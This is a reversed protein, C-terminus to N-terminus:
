KNEINKISKNKIYESIISYLAQLNSDHALLRLHSDMVQTDNRIAPGTQAEEPTLNEWKRVTQKMLPILASFDINSDALLDKSICALANTFNCAFVSALHLKQRSISDAERIDESFISATEKLKCVVDKSSGEIFVPINDYRLEHNKTFTQLPYLVGYNKFKNEFVSMPISGSTHAIIAGKDSIKSVIEGIVNDSVCILILEPNNPMGDFNHPNVLRVETKNKFAKFLHSAVNGRGVIAIM